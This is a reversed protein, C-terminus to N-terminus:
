RRSERAVGDSQSGTFSNQAAAAIIRYCTSDFRESETAPTGASASVSDRRSNINAIFRAIANRDAALTVKLKLVFKGPDFGCGNPPEGAMDTDM